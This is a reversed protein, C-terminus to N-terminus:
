RVLDADLRVVRGTSAKRVFLAVFGNSQLLAAILEGQSRVPKDDVRLLLDGRELGIRQATAGPAVSTLRLGEAVPEFWAGLPNNTVDVLLRGPPGNPGRRLLLTVTGGSNALIQDLETMSRPLQNDVRLILDGRQLGVREAPTGPSVVEVLLGDRTFEGLVGLQHQALDARLQVLQNTAKRVQLVASGNSLNLVTFLESQNRIPQGNITMVTDNPRLGIREAPTGPVVHNIRMGNPTYAGIIGLLYPGQLQRLAAVTGGGTETILRLPPSNPSRRVLLVLSGSSSNVVANFEEQNGITQGDIKVILDGRQVGAKEAPSGPGVASIRMGEVTFTGQIGLPIRGPLTPQPV